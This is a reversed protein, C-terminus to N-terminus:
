EAGRPGPLDPMPRTRLSALEAGRGRGLVLLVFGLVVFVGGTYGFSGALGTRHILPQSLIPSLFQGLFISATLGGLARGRWAAPVDQSLWVNLNPMLLGMAMGCFIM